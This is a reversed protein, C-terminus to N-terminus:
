SNAETFDTAVFYSVGDVDLLKGALSVRKGHAQANVLREIVENAVVHIAGEPGVTYPAAVRSDLENTAAVLSGTFSYASGEDLVRQAMMGTTYSCNSGVLEAQKACHSPDVGAKAAVQDTEAAAAAAVPSKNGGCALAASPVFLSALLLVRM